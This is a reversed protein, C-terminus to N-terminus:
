SIVLRSDTDTMNLERPQTWGHGYWCVASNEQHVVTQFRTLTVGCLACKVNVRDRLGGVQRCLEPRSAPIVRYKAAAAIPLWTTWAQQSLAEVGRGLALGLAGAREECDSRDEKKKLREGEAFIGLMDRFAM